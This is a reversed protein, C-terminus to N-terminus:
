TTTDNFIRFDTTEVWAPQPQVNYDLGSRQSLKFNPFNIPTQPPSLFQANSAFSVTALWSNIYNAIQQAQISDLDFVNIQVRVQDLNIPAQQTYLQVDSVQMVTVCTGQYIYGKPLQVYFWRFTGNTGTLAAALTADAMALTRMKALLPTGAM